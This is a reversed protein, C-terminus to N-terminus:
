SPQGLPSTAVVDGAGNKANLAAGHVELAASMCLAFSDIGFDSDVFSKVTTPLTPIYM